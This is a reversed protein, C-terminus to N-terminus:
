MGYLTVIETLSRAYNFQFRALSFSPVLFYHTLVENAHVEPHEQQHIQTNNSM